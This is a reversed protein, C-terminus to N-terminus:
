RDPDVEAKLPCFAHSVLVSLDDLDDTRHQVHLEIGLVQGLDVVGEPELRAGLGTLLDLEDGLHLLM